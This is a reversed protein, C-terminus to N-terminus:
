NSYKIIQLNSFKLIYFIGIKGWAARRLHAVFYVGCQPDFGAIVVGFVRWALAM